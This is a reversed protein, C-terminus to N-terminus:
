PTSSVQEHLVWAMLQDLDPIDQKFQLEAPLLAAIDPARLLHQGICLVEFHVLDVDLTAFQRRRVDLMRFIKEDPKRKTDYHVGGLKNAVYKILQIRTVALGDVVMCSSSLYRSLTTTVTPFATAPPTTLERESFLPLVLTIGGVVGGGATAFAAQAYDSGLAARLDIARVHPEGKLGISRRYRQLIAGNDVLLRRLVASEKMVSYETIPTTWSEALYALDNLVLAELGSDQQM